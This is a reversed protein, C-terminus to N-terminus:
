TRPVIKFAVRRDAQEPHPEGAALPPPAGIGIARFLSPEFGCKILFDKVANARRQSLDLNKKEEGVSDAYGRVEVQIDLGLRTAASLCRRIEDPLRSLAAFGETAFNDKNLLFYVFATEIVSKSQQFARQDLDILKEENITTLGPVGPAGRRVRTLWAHPAEGELILVGGKVSATVSDPLNFRDTFRRLVLM